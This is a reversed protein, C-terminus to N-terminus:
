YYKVYTIAPKHTWYRQKFDQMDLEHDKPWSPYTKSLTTAWAKSKNYRIYLHPDEEKQHHQHPTDTPPGSWHPNPETSPGTPTSPRHLGNEELAFPIYKFSSLFRERLSQVIRSVDKTIWVKTNGISLGLTYYNYKFKIYPITHKYTYENYERKM